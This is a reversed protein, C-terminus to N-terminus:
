YLRVENVRARTNRNVADSYFAAIYTPEFVDASFNCTGRWQDIGSPASCFALSQPWNHLLSTGTGSYEIDRSEVTVHISFRGAHLMCALCELRKTWQSKWKAIGTQLDPLIGTCNYTTLSSCTIPDPRNTFLTWEHGAKYQVFYFNILKLHLMLWDNSRGVAPLIMRNTDAM